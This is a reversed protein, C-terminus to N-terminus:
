QNMGLMEDEHLADEIEIHAAFFANLVTEDFHSGAESKMIDYAKIVPLPEKYCRKSVLADFVDAVALIKACLPIDDGALGEPYGSGNVWEHHSKAMQKAVTVYEIDHSQKEVHKIIKYGATTHTKMIEFEEDTLRGPKCLISDPVHIKGIDHLPAAVIMNEIYKTTLIDPYKKEAKLEKAIIEVYKATRRIHGGTNEDRNEVLDAMTTILVRQLKRSQKEFFLRGNSSYITYLFIVALVFSYGMVISNMLREEPLLWECAVSVVLILSTVYVAVNEMPTLSKGQGYFEIRWVVSNHFRRLVCVLIVFVLYFVTLFLNTDVDHKVFHNVLNYAVGSINYFALAFILLPISILFSFWKGHTRSRFSSYSVTIYILLVALVTCDEYKDGGIIAILAIIAQITELVIVNRYTKKTMDEFFLIKKLYLMSIGILFVLINTAVTSVTM